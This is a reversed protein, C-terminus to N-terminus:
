PREVRVLSPQVRTVVVEPGGPHWIELRAGRQTGYRAQVSGRAGRPVRVFAVVSDERIWDLMSVPAEFSVEISRPEPVWGPDDYVVVPVVLSAIEARVAEVDVTARPVEDDALHVGRPLDLPADLITLERIGTVDIPKTLVHTLKGLLSRPGELEVVSPELSVGSVRYATSPEGVHRPQVKVKHRAQEDLEVTLSVPEVAVLRLSEPLSSWDKAALDVVHEGPQGDLEVSQDLGVSRARKTAARPGEVRLVIQNRLPTTPVLEPPLDWHLRVPVTSERSVDQQVFLWATVAILLALGKTFPNSTLWAAWESLREAM